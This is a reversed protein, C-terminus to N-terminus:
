FVKPGARPLQALTDGALYMSGTVCIRGSPPTQSRALDLAAVPTPAVTINKAGSAELSEKLTATDAARPNSTRVVVFADGRPALLRLVADVNKDAAIGVVFTTKKPPLAALTDLLATISAVNHAGDIVVDPDRAVLQIRGPWQLSALGDRICADSIDFGGECLLEALGVATAANDRQHRGLLPLHLDGLERRWTRVSFADGPGDTVAMDEGVVRVPAGLEAARARIAAM